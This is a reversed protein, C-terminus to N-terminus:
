QAACPCSRPQRSSRGEQRPTSTRVRISLFKAWYLPGFCGDGLPYKRAPTTPIASPWRLGCDDPSRWEPQRGARIPMGVAASSTVIRPARAQRDASDTQCVDAVGVSPMSEPTFRCGRRRPRPASRRGHRRYVPFRPQRALGALRVLPTLAPRDSGTASRTSRGPVAGARITAGSASAPRPTARAPSRRRCRGGAGNGGSSPAVPADGLSEQINRATPRPRCRGACSPRGPATATAAAAAAAAAAPRRAPEVTGAVVPASPRGGRGRAGPVPRRGAAAPAPGHGPLDVLRGRAPDPRAAGRVPSVGRAPVRQAPGAPRLRAPRHRAAHRRDRDPARGM